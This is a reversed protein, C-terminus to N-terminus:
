SMKKVVKYNEKFFALVSVSIVIFSLIKWYKINSIQKIKIETHDKGSSSLCNCKIPSKITKEKIHITINPSFSNYSTGENINNLIRYNTDETLWEEFNVYHFSQVHISSECPATVQNQFTLYHSM